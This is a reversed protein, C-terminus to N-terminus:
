ANELVEIVSYKEVDSPFEPIRPCDTLDITFCLMTKAPHFRQVLSYAAAITGGTALLDDCILVVDNETISDIHMEITDTGYEKSYRETLKTYPLKGAKRAMIFGAGLRDALIAGTIFGRSELGVVKTIGMGKFHNYLRESIEHFCEANLTLTTIDQFMIGKQPYDPIVRINKILEETTM